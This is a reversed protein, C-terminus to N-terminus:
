ESVRAERGGERGGEMGGERGGDRGGERGGEGEREPYKRGSALKVESSASM